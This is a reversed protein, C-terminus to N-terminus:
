VEGHYMGGWQWIKFQTSKNKINRARFIENLDKNWQIKNPLLFNTLHCPKTVDLVLERGSILSWAYASMIGKLRDAKQNKQKFYIHM